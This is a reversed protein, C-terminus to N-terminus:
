TWQLLVTKKRSGAERAAESLIVTDDDTPAGPVRACRLMFPETCERPGGGWM